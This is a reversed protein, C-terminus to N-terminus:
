CSSSIKINMISTETDSTTGDSLWTSWGMIPPDKHNLAVRDVIHSRKVQLIFDFDREMGLYYRCLENLATSTRSGPAFMRHQERTLPGLQIQVKGQAFWGQSGLMCSQGLCANQGLPMGPYPMRTRVDDILPQWQGVFEHVVVPVGFYDSIIQKLGSATKVQQNFLGSYYILSEDHFCQRNTMHRGGLGLLSLIAHTHEDVTGGLSQHQNRSLQESEYRLPLRYKVSARYFLSVLRHNFLDFFRQLSRDRQKARQILLESYHFPLIGVAGTLGLFNTRLKFYGSQQDNTLKQASEASNKPFELSPNHSFRVAERNAPAYKGVEQTNQPVEQAQARPTYAAARELLRVIQVFEFRGPYDLLRQVVSINKPRSKPPM